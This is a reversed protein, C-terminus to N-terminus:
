AALAGLIYLVSLMATTHRIVHPNLPKESVGLIKTKSGYKRTVYRIGFRTIPVGNANLFVQNNTSGIHNRTNLYAILAEVTEPWLPCSRQKAGKGFLQVQPSDELHLSSIELDVIESVRAGTNYLLLLLANDRVGTRSNLDISDFIARMDKDEFYPIIKHTARKTPIAHIQQCQTVFVPEERAICTFFSRIGALRVNRTSAACGREQEVHDLFKLVLKESLDEVSLQDVRKNITDSAYCLLLKLTDRYSNITNVSVGKQSPLYHVLFRQISAGLQDNM